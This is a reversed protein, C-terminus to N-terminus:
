NSIANLIRELKKPSPIATTKANQYELLDRELINVVPELEDYALKRAM